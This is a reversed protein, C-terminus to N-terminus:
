GSEVQELVASLLAALEAAPEPLAAPDLDEIEKLKLAIEALTEEPINMTRNNGIRM